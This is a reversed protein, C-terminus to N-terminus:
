NQKAWEMGEGSLKYVSLSCSGTTFSCTAVVTSEADWNQNNLLLKYQMAAAFPSL